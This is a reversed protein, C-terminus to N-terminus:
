ICLCEKITSLTSLSCCLLLSLSVFHVVVCVYGEVRSSMVLKVVLAAQAAIPQSAESIVFLSEEEHETAM